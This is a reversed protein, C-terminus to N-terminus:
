NLEMCLIGADTEDGRWTESEPSRSSGATRKCFMWMLKHHRNAFLPGAHNEYDRLRLFVAVVGGSIGEICRCTPSGAASRVEARGSRDCRENGSVRKARSRDM